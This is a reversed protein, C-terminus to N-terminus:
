KPAWPYLFKYQSDLDKIQTEAWGMALDIGERPASPDYDQERIVRSTNALGATMWSGHAGDAHLLVTVWRNEQAIPVETLHGSQSSDDILVFRALGGLIRVKQQLDSGFIDEVDKVMFPEYGLENLCGCISDLRALGDRSYDGLVLVSRQKRGNVYEDIPLRHANARHYETLAALVQDKARGVALAQTWFSQTRNGYLEGGVVNRVWGLANFHCDILTLHTDSGGLRFPNPENSISTGQLTCRNAGDRLMIAPGRGAFGRELRGPRDLFLDEVRRSGSVIELSQSSGPLYEWAVGFQTSVYGRIPCPGFSLHSLLRVKDSPLYQAATSELTSHFEDLYAKFGDATVNM